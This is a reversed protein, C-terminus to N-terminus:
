RTECVKRGRQREAFPQVSPPQILTAKAIGHTPMRVGWPYPPVLSQEYQYVIAPPLNRRDYSQGMRLTLSSPAALVLHIRKVGRGALTAIVELFQKTLRAQKSESWLADPVPTSLALHVVPINLFTARVGDLDARYSASVCVIVDTSYLRDDLGAVDFSSGDDMGGLEGWRKEDRKWDMLTVRGEDDLLMGTLFLFPVQLLGGAVVSVDSRDRGKMESTLRTHVLHVEDLAAQTENDTKARMHDRIDVIIDKREGVMEAPVADKLPADSTDLLGRLELVLVLKRKRMRESSIFGYTLMIAGLAILAHSLGYSVDVWHAPVNPSGFRLVTRGGDVAVDIVVLWDILGRLLVGAGLVIAGPPRRRYIFQLARLAFDFVPALNM